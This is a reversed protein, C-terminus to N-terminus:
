RSTFGEYRVNLIRPGSGRQNGDANAQRMGNWDDMAQKGGLDIAARCAPDQHNEIDGDFACRYIRSQPVIMSGHAFATAASGCAWFLAGAIVVLTNRPPPTRM